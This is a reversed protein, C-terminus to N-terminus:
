KKNFLLSYLINLITFIAVAIIFNVWWNIKYTIDWLMLISNIAEQLLWLIISNIVLSFLWGTLIMFPFGLLKLLPKITYNLLWLIIWGLLFVKWWGSFVVADPYDTTNLLFQILYLISSNLFIWFLIKMLLFFLLIFTFFLLSFM